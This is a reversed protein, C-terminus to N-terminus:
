FLNTKKDYSVTWTNNLRVNFYFDDQQDNGPLQWQLTVSTNTSFGQLNIPQPIGTFVYFPM